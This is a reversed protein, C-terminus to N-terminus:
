KGGAIGGSRSRSRASSPPRYSSRPAAKRDNFSGAAVGASRQRDILSGILMGTFFGNSSFSTYTANGSMDTAILRRNENDIEIKFLQEDGQEMVANANKDSYGIFSAAKTMAVGIATDYFQAPANMEQTIVSNLEGIEKPSLVDLDQRELYAAYKNLAKETRDLAQGLDATQVGRTGGFFAAAILLIVGIGLYKKLAAM